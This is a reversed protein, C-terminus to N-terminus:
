VMVISDRDCVVFTVGHEGDGGYEDDGEEMLRYIAVVAGGEVREFVGGALEVEFIIGITVVKVKHLAGPLTTNNPLLFIVLLLTIPVLKSFRRIPM